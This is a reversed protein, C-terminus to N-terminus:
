VESAFVWLRYRRDRCTLALGPFTTAPGTGDHDVVVHVFVMWLGLEGQQLWRGHGRLEAGLANNITKATLKEAEVVEVWEDM